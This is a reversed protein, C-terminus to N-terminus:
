PRKGRENAQARYWDLSIKLGEKLQIKPQWGLIKKARSIDPCRRKPDDQPLPHYSLDSNCGTMEKVIRALAVVTFEAPNGLNVPEHFDSYLLSVLGAVLDSIFCFSRTQKGNGFIPLPEGVLARVIFTPVVRGDDERMRPGYTNFIRAIHTNLGYQRHYAMTAAEAFRKSEDYVSRPGIPNVNGWYEEKQPHSLPDGYVESTSALLFNAKYRLAFELINLTGVSMTRITEIPYKLYDVPSAPSAFHLLTDIKEDLPLEQTVDYKIFRFRPNTRFPIINKERGTIFNDIVIVEHGEKLFHEVLHSGIFGAGGTIIM